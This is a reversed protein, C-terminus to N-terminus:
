RELLSGSVTAEVLDRAIQDPIDDRVCVSGPEFGPLIWRVRGAKVKKDL